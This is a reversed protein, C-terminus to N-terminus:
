NKLLGIQFGALVKAPKTQGGHMQEFATTGDKGCLGIIADRGGPHNSIWNTLDYVGGEVITWCSQENNHVVVETMSYPVTTSATAVPGLSQSNNSSYSTTNAGGWALLVALVFFALSVIYTKKM